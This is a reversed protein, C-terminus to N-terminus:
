NKLLIGIFRKKRSLCSNSFFDSTKEKFDVAVEKVKAAEETQKNRSSYGMAIVALMVICVFVVGLIIKKSKM